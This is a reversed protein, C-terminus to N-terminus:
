LRRSLIHAHVASCYVVLVHARPRQSYVSYTKTNLVYKCLLPRFFFVFSLFISRYRRSFRFLVYVVGARAIGRTCLDHTKQQANSKTSFRICHQRHYENKFYEPNVSIKPIANAGCGNHVRIGYVRIGFVTPWTSLWFFACFLLSIPKVYIKAPVGRVDPVSWM